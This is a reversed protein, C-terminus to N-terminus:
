ASLLLAAARLAPYTLEVLQGGNRYRVLGSRRLERIAQEITETETGDEPDGAIRLTLEAVTLRQPHLEIVEFLVARGVKEPDYKPPTDSAVTGV